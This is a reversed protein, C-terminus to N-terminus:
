YNYSVSGTIPDSGYPGKVTVDYDMRYTASSINKTYTQSFNTSTVSWSKVFSGDKYLSVTGSVTVNVGDPYITLRCYAGSSSVSLSANWDIPNNTRPTAASASIAFVLALALALASVRKKM